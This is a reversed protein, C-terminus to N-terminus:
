ETQLRKESADGAIWRVGTPIATSAHASGFQRRTFTESALLAIEVNTAVAPV